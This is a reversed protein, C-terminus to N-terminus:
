PFAPTVLCGADRGLSRLGELDGPGYGTVRGGSAEMIEGEANVHGLGMVHGLEHLLVPGQDGPFAFGPPNTDELNMAIWGSVFVDGGLPGTTPAAVAAATHGNKEFGIDTDAPDIWAILVPAWRGPYRSPQFASRNRTPTEESLGDYVFPIGTAGSVRLIAERVDDTSGPPATSANVVYHIPECPNWRVPSDDSRWALFTHESPRGHPPADVVWQIAALGGGLAALALSIAVFVAVVRPVRSRPTPRAWTTPVSLDPLDPRPPPPQDGVDPPLTPDVNEM